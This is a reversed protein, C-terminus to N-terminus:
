KKTDNSDNKGIKNQNIIKVTEKYAKEEAIYVIVQTILSMIFTGSILYLNNRYESKISTIFM